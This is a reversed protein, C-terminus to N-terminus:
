NHLNRFSCLLLEPLYPLHYDHDLIHTPFDVIQTIDQAMAFEQWFLDAVTIHSYCLWLTNRAKFDGCVMMNASPQLILAKDINSSVAEVVSCNSSSLLCYLFFIFTISHILALRLCKLSM